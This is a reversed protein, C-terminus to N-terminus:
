LLAIGRGGKLGGSPESPWDPPPAPSSGGSAADYLDGNSTAVTPIKPSEALGNTSSIAVFRSANSTLPIEIRREDPGIRAFPSTENDVYVIYATIGNDDQPANWTIVSKFSGPQVTIGRPPQPKRRSGATRQDVAKQKLAFREYDDPRMPM